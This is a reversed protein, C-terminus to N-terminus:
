GPQGPEQEPQGPQGEAVRHGGSASASSANRHNVMPQGPIAAMTAQATSIRIVQRHNQGTPKARHTAVGARLVHRAQTYRRRQGATIVM